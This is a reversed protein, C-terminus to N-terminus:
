GTGTAPVLPFGADVFDDDFAFARDVGADEMVVFSVVDVLSLRRRDSGRRRAVARDHQSRDVMRVDVAPLLVAQLHEARMRSAFQESGFMDLQTTVVFALTRELVAPSCAALSVLLTLVAIARAM